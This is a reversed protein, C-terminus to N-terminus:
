YFDSCYPPYTTSFAATVQELAGENNVGIMGSEAAVDPRVHGTFLPALFNVSLEIDAEGDARGAQMRGEAAEVRWVGDNWPASADVIRMTFSVPREGCYPRMTLAQEVDVVRLMAGEAREVELKWPWGDVVLEPFPDDLPAHVAVRAAIDHGLLYQWLGLYADPTVAVMDRVVVETEPFMRGPVMAQRTTYVVFGQAEGQGDLWIVAQMSRDQLFDRLVAERWWVEPRHLPGNRPDAYQRYVADLRQWDDAGVPELRGAEGRVRLNLDKARFLYRKKGEAREWGYRQYLPDHPTYLGALPLGHEHMWELSLRLLRGVYGRRRHEALCVVPGVLGFAVAGGNIRRAMPTTRVDAVLRGDVFAGVTSTFPHIRRLLELREPRTENYFAVAEVYAAQELDDPKLARFEVDV